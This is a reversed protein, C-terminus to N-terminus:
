PRQENSEALVSRYIQRSLYLKKLTEKAAFCQCNRCRRRIDVDSKADRSSQPPCSVPVGASTVSTHALNWSVFIPFRQSHKLGADTVKTRALEADVILDGISKLRTLTADDCREPASVTRLILGDTPNKRFPGRPSASNQELSAIKKLQPRYDDAFPLAPAAPKPLPPAGHVELEPLTNTAGSAIWL